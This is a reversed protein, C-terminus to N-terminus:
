RVFTTETIRVHFRKDSQCSIGSIRPELEALLMRTAARVRQRYAYAHTRSLPRPPSMAISAGASNSHGTTFTFDDVVLQEKLSDLSAIGDKWPIDSIYSDLKSEVTKIFSSINEQRRRGVEDTGPFYLFTGKTHVLGEKNDQKTRM